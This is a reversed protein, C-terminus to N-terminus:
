VTMLEENDGSKRPFIVQDWAHMKEAYGSGSLIADAVAITMVADDTFRSAPTFLHFDEPIGPGFEYSSGVIDGIIAGLM